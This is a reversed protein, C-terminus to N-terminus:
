KPGYAINKRALLVIYDQLLSLRLKISDVRDIFRLCYSIEDEIASFINGIPRVDDELEFLKFIGEFKSQYAYGIVPVGSGLSAIALHMRGTITFDVKSVIFKVEAATLYENTLLCYNKQPEPLLGYVIASATRDSCPERNDHPMFVLSVNNGLIAKAWHAWQNIFNEIKGSDHRMIPLLNINLCAVKRDNNKQFNIWDIYDDTKKSQKAILGFAVDAASTIERELISSLRVASYQDRCVVQTKKLYLKASKFVRKNQSDNFSCSILSSSAGSLRAIDSLLFLFRTKEVSYYGDILDAGILYIRDYKSFVVPWMFYRAIKRLTSSKELYLAGGFSCAAPIYPSEDIFSLINIKIDDIENLFRTTGEMLAQDGLSMKSTPCPELIAVLKNKSMNERRFLRNLWYIVRAEIRLLTMVFYLFNDKM